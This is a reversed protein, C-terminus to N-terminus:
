RLPLVVGVPTRFSKAANIRTGGSLMGGFWASTIRRSHQLQQIAVCATRGRGCGQGYGQNKHLHHRKTAHRHRLKDILETQNHRVHLHRMIRVNIRGGKKRSSAYICVHTRVRRMHRVHSTTRLQLRQVSREERLILLAPAVDCAGYM